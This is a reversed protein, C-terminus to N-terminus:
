RLIRAKQDSDFCLGSTSKLSSPIQDKITPFVRKISKWFANGHKAQNVEQLKRHTWNSAETSLEEKFRARAKLLAEHNQPTSTRKYTKGLSRVENNLQTLQDNWFPKSHNTISKTPICERNADNIEEKLYNGAAIPDKFIPNDPFSMDRLKDELSDRWKKWNVDDLKFTTVKETSYSTPLVFKAYVPVHGLSPYGILLEADTDTYFTSWNTLQDTTMCLDIVSTGNVSYFTKKVM